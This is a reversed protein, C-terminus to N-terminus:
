SCYLAISYGLMFMGFGAGMVALFMCLNQMVVVYKKEM